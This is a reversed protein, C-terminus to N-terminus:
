GEESAYYVTKVMMIVSPRDVVCVCLRGSPLRKKFVRSRNAPDPLTIDPWRLAEVVEAETIGRERMRHRAHRTIEYEM